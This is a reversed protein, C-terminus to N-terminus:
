PGSFNDVPDINGVYFDPNSSHVWVWLDNPAGSSWNFVWEADRPPMNVCGHSHKYGFRDHWYAGHLAIDNDFFMTHPVDEVYYYDARGEAGSMKTQEHRSWVQFVGEHTPWQNLGSSVLGAYVMTDGIYAAFSQEYLDVEVWYEDEGVEEPRPSADILSVYTQRMWRGGGINYWIWGDDAIVAEHVEFFTYRPLKLNGPAPDVGPENSYWFDVIMWGFPREPQDNIEFGTFESDDVLRIDEARVYENYNIAYWTGESNEVVGQLTVFLFGDGVNEVIGSGASPGAFVDAYDNLRAYSVYPLFSDAFPKPKVFQAQPAETNCVIGVSESMVYCDVAYVATNQGFLGVALFIFSFIVLLKRRM